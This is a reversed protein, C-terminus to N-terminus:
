MARREVFLDALELFHAARELLQHVASPAAAWSERHGGPPCSQSVSAPAQLAPRMLGLPIVFSDCADSGAYSPFSSFIAAGCSTVSGTHPM